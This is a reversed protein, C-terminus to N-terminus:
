EWLATLVICTCADPTGCVECFSDPGWSTKNLKATRITKINKLIIIETGGELCEGREYKTHLLLVMIDLKIMLMEATGWLLFISTYINSVFCSHRLPMKNLLEQCWIGFGVKVKQYLSNRRWNQNDLISIRFTHKQIHEHQSYIRPNKMGEETNVLRCMVDDGQVVSWKTGKSSRAQSWECGTPSLVLPLLAMREAGSPKTGCFVRTHPLFASFWSQLLAGLVVAPTALATQVLHGSCQALQASIRTLPLDRLRRTKELTEASAKSQQLVMWLILAAKPISCFQM